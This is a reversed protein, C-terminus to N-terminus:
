VAYMEHLEKQMSNLKKYVGDEIALLEEHTGEERLVGDKVVLIRNARRLTSLRHAIAIVTRGSVLRDIADQINRETETDVSSTAEDLILIRPNHLIARAISVRQREGGSLTHGREGVVTDYGQPLKCIFDHANAARAARIVDGLGAERNGYRINELVSGHFLYPDQMVMGIQSRYVGPDLDRVDHGDVLVRGTHADYFRAILNIITTKGSGSPGVLGIMEGPKVELSIGKLIQRVPEYGFTVEEFTIRGEIQGPDVPQEKPVIDPETDLIEFVRHASSLSRNIMRTMVGIQDIPGIFMGMYLLFSVFVGPAMTISAPSGDGILRPMAFFWVILVMLEVVFFILPWIGTWISHINNAEDTVTKNRASFRRREHDEQNFAKVVRMGPITDSLVATMNSWKQWIRIFVGHLKAGMLYTLYFIVPLPLILILGLQWDLLLMVGSLGLIMLVSLILDSVGFAIFDWIRDTDSSVRSIVSGTQHESFYNVSLTHLHDYIDDRLDRAVEEGVMTLFRLRLWLFGLRAVILAILIGLLWYAAHYASGSDLEGRSVPWIVDDILRQTLYPPALAVITLLVAAAVGLGFRVRYPKLYGLLRWVVAARNADKNAHAKRIPEALSEAYAEDADEAVVSRGELQQKLVYTIAAFAQRQRQSFRLLGLAPQDADGRLFLQNCSLGPTERVERLDSRHFTKVDIEGDKERAVACHEPGLALWTQTLRLSADLDAMAYLQVAHGGWADEIRRRIAAPLADPQDSFRRLLRRNNSLSDPKM